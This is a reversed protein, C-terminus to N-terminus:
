VNFRWGLSSLLLIVPITFILVFLITTIKMISIASKFHQESIESNGDGLVYHEIKEFRIGLAGALTAMPYGANPSETKPGDRKMIHISHKWDKKLMVCSLVMVLSTLRSPLFNLIKDCNAAFWGVNRFIETKYGIMSDATNVTRYVFAGVLGFISYYFLPGTIGDVINESISELTASIIHQKDLNKTNRKVIMSLKARADDLDNKSLANMIKSAHNEMGKIAITTKLLVGVSIISLSLFLIKYIGNLDFNEVYKLTSSFSLTLISVITIVLILLAMGNIKEILPNISRTYPVLKGMLKGMWVTPHYRNKPDGLSFDLVLALIVAVIPIM